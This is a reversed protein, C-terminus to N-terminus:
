GGVKGSAPGAETEPAGAGAASAFRRYLAEGLGRQSRMAAADAVHQDLMGTFIDEGAGGSPAGGDPVTERMAKFLEQLFTGELLRTAARLRAEAGGIRGDRLAALADRGPGGVPGANM